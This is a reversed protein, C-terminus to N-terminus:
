EEDASDAAKTLEDALERAADSTLAVEKETGADDLLLCVFGDGDKDYFSVSFRAPVGEIITRKM